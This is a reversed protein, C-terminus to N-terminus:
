TRPSRDPAPPFVAIGGEGAERVGGSVVLRRRGPFGTLGCEGAPRVGLRAMTRLPAKNWSAILSTYRRFGMERLRLRILIGARGHIGLGRQGAATYAEDSYVEGPALILMRRLYPLFVPGTFFWRVHVLRGEQAALFCLHGARLRRDVLGPPYFGPRFRALAPADAPGALSVVLGEPGSSPAPIVDLSHTFALYRRRLLWPLLRFSFRFPGQEGLLDLATAIKPRFGGAFLPGDTEM